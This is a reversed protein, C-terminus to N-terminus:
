LATGKSPVFLGHLDTQELKLLQMKKEIGGAYGTLSGNAGVVRHCPILISIPNHGVAGGVAQASMSPRGMREAALRALRGYTTVTGYPIECLLAWINKQFVSGHPLLPLTMAPRGGQFYCDLWTRTRDFVPLAAETFHSGLTAAEYKQGKIWLGTISEGDSAITLLGIPASYHTTYQMEYTM